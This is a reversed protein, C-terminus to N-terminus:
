PEPLDWSPNPTLAMLLEWWMFQVDFDRVLFGLAKSLATPKEQVLAPRAALLLVAYVVSIGVPYLLIGLWAISQVLRHDATGCEIAYDARLFSRGNSFGECSFARFAASSVMPFMLFSLVLLGPLAAMLQEKPRGRRLCRPDRALLAEVCPWALHYLAYAAALLLPAFMTFALSHGYSGLGLCQLPLGMAEININIIDFSELLRVVAGPLELDYVETIRTAVQYFSMMQKIKARLSLQTYLRWLWGLMAIVRLPLRHRLRMWLSLLGAVGACGGVVVLVTLLANGECPMCSSEKANYYVSDDRVECVKCYPGELGQRCPGEGGSVGGVCGSDVGADPCRRLDDSDSGTRYYGVKLPLSALSTGAEVCASGVPCLACEVSNNAASRANYYGKNCLCQEM